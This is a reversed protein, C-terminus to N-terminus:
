KGSATVGCFRLQYLRESINVKGNSFTNPGLPPSFAFPSELEGKQRNIGFPSFTNLGFCFSQVLVM